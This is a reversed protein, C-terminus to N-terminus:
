YEKNNQELQMLQKSAQEGLNFIYRMYSEFRSVGILREHIESRHMAKKDTMNFEPASLLYTLRVPEEKLYNDLFVEKFDKNEYLRILAESLKYQKEYEEKLQLYQEYSIDITDNSTNVM